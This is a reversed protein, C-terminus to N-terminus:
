YVIHVTGSKVEDRFIGNRPVKYTIVYLYVGPEVYKNNYKGDWSINNGYGWFIKQGWRNFIRLEDIQVNGKPKFIDNLGDDNPSFISPISIDCGFLIFELTIDDTFTGCPNTASLEYTGPRDIFRPMDTNGDNWSFSGQPVTVNIRFQEGGCLIQDEPLEFIPADLITVVRSDSASCNGNSVNVSYTGAQSIVISNGATGNSWTAAGIVPDVSMVFSTGRCIQTDLGLNFIPVPLVETTQTSTDFCNGINYIYHITNTGLKQPRFASGGSVIGDGRFIGGSLNPILVSSDDGLCYVDELGNFYNNPQVFVEVSDSLKAYCGANDTMELDVTYKGSAAFSYSVNSGNLVTGDGFTWTSTGDSPSRNEFVFNNDNLCLASDKKWLDGEKLPIPNVSVSLEASDLCFTRGGNFTSRIVLKILYDGPQPYSVGVNFNSSQRGDGFTWQPLTVNIANPLTGITSSNTISFRNNRGNPAIFCQIQTNFPSDATLVFDANPQPPITDNKTITSFCGPSSVTLRTAKYGSTAYIKTPNEVNSTTGDAFLWNYNVNQTFSKSSNNTFIIEHNGFCQYSNNVSFDATVINTSTNATAVDTTNYAYINGGSTNYEFIAFHYNTNPKLGVVRVSSGINNYVARTDASLAQGAPFSDNALYFQNNTPNIAVAAGERVLVLRANGNGRTWSLTIENCYVDSFAINSNGTTPATQGLSQLSFVAAILALFAFRYM